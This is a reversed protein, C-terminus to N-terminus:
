VILLPLMWKPLGTVSTELAARGGSITLFRPDILILGPRGADRDRHASLEVVEAKFEFREVIRRAYESLPLEQPPFPRWDASSGPTAIEVTFVGLPPEPVYDGNIVSANTM